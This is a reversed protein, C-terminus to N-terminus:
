GKANYGSCWGKATVAKGPFLQCAATPTKDTGQFFKCNSCFQGAKHTPYKAGDVKAADDAYGLAAATPDAATLLPLEEAAARRALPAILIAAGALTLFRRRALTDNTNM